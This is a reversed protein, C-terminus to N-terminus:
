RRIGGVPSHLSLEYELLLYVVEENCAPPSHLSLEYELLLYVVEENRPSHLIRSCNMRVLSGLFAMMYQKFAIPVSGREGYNQHLKILM